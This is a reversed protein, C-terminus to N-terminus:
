VRFMKNISQESAGGVTRLALVAAGDTGTTACGRHAPAWRCQLQPVEVTRQVTQGKRVQRVCCRAHCCWWSQVTSDGVKQVTLVTCVQRQLWVSVIVVTVEFDSNVNVYFIHSIGWLWTCQRLGTDVTLGSLAPCPFTEPRIEWFICFWASKLGFFLLRGSVLPGVLFLTRTGLAFLLVRPSVGYMYGSDLWYTSFASVVGFTFEWFFGCKRANRPLVCCRVLSQWTRPASSAGYVAAFITDLTSGLM